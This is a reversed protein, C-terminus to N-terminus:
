RVNKEDDPDYDTAGATEAPQDETPQDETLPDAATGSDQGLSERFGEEAPVAQDDDDLLEAEPEPVFDQNGIHEGFEDLQYEVGDYEMAELGPDNGDYEYYKYDIM